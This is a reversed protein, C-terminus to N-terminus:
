NNLRQEIEKYKKYMLSMQYKRRKDRIIGLALKWSREENEESSYYSYFIAKSELHIKERL